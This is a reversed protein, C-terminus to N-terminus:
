AAQTKAAARREAEAVIALTARRIPSRNIQGTALLEPPIRGNWQRPESVIRADVLAQALDPHRLVLAKRADDEAIAAQQANKWMRKFDGQARIAKVDDESLNSTTRQRPLAAVTPPTSLRGDGVAAAIARKRALFQEPTEDPDGDDIYDSPAGLRQARIQRRVTRLHHPEMWRRGSLELSTSDSYFRSVAAFADPDAPVDHLAEAWATAAAESDPNRGDFASAKTLIKAAESRNM